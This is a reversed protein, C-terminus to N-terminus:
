EQLYEKMYHRQLSKTQLEELLQYLIGMLIQWEIKLLLASMTRIWDQTILHEPDGSALVTPNGPEFALPSETGIATKVGFHKAHTFAENLLFGINNFVAAKESAIIAPTFGIADSAMEDFPFLKDSGDTFDTTQVPTGSWSNEETRYTSAWYSTYASEEKITGDVNVDSKHGIWVHPEPGELSEPEGREPYHHLGFFNM